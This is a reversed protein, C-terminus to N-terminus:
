KHRSYYYYIGGSPDAKQRRAFYGKYYLTALQNSANQITIGRFLALAKATHIRNGLTVTVRQHETLLLKRIREPNCLMHHRLQRNFDM